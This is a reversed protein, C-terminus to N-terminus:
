HGISRVEGIQEPAGTLVDVLNQTPCLRGVDRYLLGGLEIEDYVEGGCFCEAQGHRILQEREGIFHDFLVMQQVAYTEKHGDRLDRRAVAAATLPAYRVSRPCRAPPPRRM